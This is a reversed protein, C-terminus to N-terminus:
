DQNTILVIGIVIPAAILLAIGTVIFTTKIGYALAIMTAIMGLGFAICLFGIITKIM